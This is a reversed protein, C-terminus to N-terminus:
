SAPKKAPKAPREDPISLATATPLNHPENMFYAANYLFRQLRLHCYIWYGAILLAAIPGLLGVGVGGGGLGYTLQWFVDGVFMVVLARRTSAAVDRLAIQDNAIASRHVMGILAILGIAYAPDKLVVVYKLTQLDSAAATLEDLSHQDPHLAIDVFTALVKYSWLVSAAAVAFGVAAIILHGAGIPTRRLEPIARACGILMALMAAANALLYYQTWDLATRVEDPSEAGLLKVTTVIVLVLQALMIFVGIRVLKLGRSFSPLAALM